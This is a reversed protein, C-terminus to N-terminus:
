QLLPTNIVHDICTGKHIRIPISKTIPNSFSGVGENNQAAVQFTYAQNLNFLSNAVQCSYPGGSEQGCLLNEHRNSINIAVGTSMQTYQIIYGSIDAGNQLHCPVPAWSINFRDQTTDKQSTPPGVCM